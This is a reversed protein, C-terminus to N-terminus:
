SKLKRNSKFLLAKNFDYSEESFITQKFANNNPYHQFYLFVYAKNINELNTKSIIKNLLDNRIKSSILNNDIQFIFLNTNLIIFFTLIIKKIINLIKLNIILLAIFIIFIFNYAGM